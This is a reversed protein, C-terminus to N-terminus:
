RTVPTRRPRPPATRPSARRAAPRRGPPAPAAAERTMEIMTERFGLASFVRRARPNSAAAYLVVRPVKRAALRAFLAETLAAGVGRRRAAPEVWLDVAVGCRDRLLNWDRPEVRGYAYGVVRRGAAASLLIARPNELERGLWWAYGDELPEDPLFFRAPDWAHHARALEAGFRGLAPLDERRADRIEVPRRRPEPM